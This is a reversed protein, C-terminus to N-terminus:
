MTECLIEISRTEHEWNCNSIIVINHLRCVCHLLYHWPALRDRPPPPYSNHLRNGLCCSHLATLLMRTQVNSLYWMTNHKRLPLRVTETKVNSTCWSRGRYANQYDKELKVYQLCDFAPKHSAENGSGWYSVYPDWEWVRPYMSTENGSGQCVCVCMFPPDLSM